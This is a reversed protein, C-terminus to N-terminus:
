WDSQIEMDISFLVFYINLGPECKTYSDPPAEEPQHSQTFEIGNCFYDIIQGM